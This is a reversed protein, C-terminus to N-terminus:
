ATRRRVDHEWAQRLRHQYVAGSSIRGKLLGATAHVVGMPRLAARRPLQWAVLKAAELREELAEVGELWARSVMNPKVM